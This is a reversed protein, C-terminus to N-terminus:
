SYVIGNYRILLSRLKKDMYDEVIITDLELNSLTKLKRFDHNCAANSCKFYFDLLIRIESLRADRIKSKTFTNDYLVSDYVNELLEHTKNIADKAADQIKESIEHLQEKKM